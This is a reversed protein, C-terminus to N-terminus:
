VAAGGSSSQPLTQRQLLADLEALAITDADGTGGDTPPVNGGQAVEAFLLVVWLILQRAPQRVYGHARESRSVSRSGSREISRM